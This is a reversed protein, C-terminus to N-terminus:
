AGGKWPCTDNPARDVPVVPGLLSIVGYHIAQHTNFSVCIANEPNLLIDLRKNLVDDISVPNIHHIYIRGQIPFDPHGMDNGDDRLVITRRFDKWEKSTYFVQNLYRHGGFTQFGVQGQLKLYNFRQFYDPITILTSYSKDFSTM